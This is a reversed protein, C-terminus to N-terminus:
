KRTLKLQTKEKSLNFTIVKYPKFIQTPAMCTGSSTISDIKLQIQDLKTFYYTGFIATFCDNGCEWSDYSKFNKDDFFDIAQFNYIFATKDRESLNYTQEGDPTILGGTNIIWQTNKLSNPFKSKEKECNLIILMILTLLSLVFFQKM